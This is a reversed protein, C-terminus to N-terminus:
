TQGTRSACYTIQANSYKLWLFCFPIGRPAAIKKLLLLPPTLFPEAKKNGVSYTTTFNEQGFHSIGAIFSPKQLDGSRKSKWVIDHVSPLAETRGKKQSAITQRSQFRRETHLKKCGLLSLRCLIVVEKV